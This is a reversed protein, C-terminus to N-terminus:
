AMGTGTQTGTEPKAPVFGLILLATAVLGLIWQVVSHIGAQSNLIILNEGKSAYYFSAATGYVLAVLMLAKAWRYGKWVLYGFGAMLLHFSFSVLPSAPRETHKDFVGSQTLYGFTSSIALSFWWVYAAWTEYPRQRTIKMCSLSFAPM